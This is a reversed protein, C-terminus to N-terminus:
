CDSCRGTGPCVNFYHSSPSAVVSTAFTPLEAVQGAVTPLLLYQLLSSPLRHIPSYTQAGVLCLTYSSPPLFHPAGRHPFLAALLTNPIHLPLAHGIPSDSYLPAALSPLLVAHSSPLSSSTCLIRPLYGSPAFTDRLLTTPLLNPTSTFIAHSFLFPLLFLLIPPFTHPPIPPALAPLLLQSTHLNRLTPCGVM